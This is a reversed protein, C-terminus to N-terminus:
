IHLVVGIFSIHGPIFYPKIVGILQFFEEDISSFADSRRIAHKKAVFSVFRLSKSECMIKITNPNLNEGPHMKPERARDSYEKM